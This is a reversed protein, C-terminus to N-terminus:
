LGLERRVQERDFGARELERLLMGAHKTSLEPRGHDAVTITTQAQRFRRHGTARRPVETFGHALLWRVLTRKSLAM